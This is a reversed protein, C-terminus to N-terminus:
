LDQKCDDYKGIRLNITPLIRCQEIILNFPNDFVRLFLLNLEDKMKTIYGFMIGVLLPKYCLMREGFQVTDNGISDSRTVM